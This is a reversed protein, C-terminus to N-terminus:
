TLVPVLEPVGHECRIDGGDPGDIHRWGTGDCDTCDTASITLLDRRHRTAYEALLRDTDEALIKRAYGRPRHAGATIAEKEALARLEAKTVRLTAARANLPELSPEPPALAAGNAGDAGGRAVSAMADAGGRPPNDVPESPPPTADVGGRQMIIRYRNTRRDDRTRHDGGEQTEVAIHGGSELRRLARQVNRRDLNAYRALTALAPWADHGASDAHNALGILIVKDTGTVPSHNLVWSIAEVSM